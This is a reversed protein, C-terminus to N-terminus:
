LLGNSKAYYEEVRKVDKHIQERLEIINAFKMQQHLFNYFEVRITKGYINKDFHLIHTEVRREFNNITPNYGISTISNYKVGDIITRTAYVGDPPLLKNKHPILNATPFGITHGLNNGHVVEGSIFYPATLLKTAETFNQSTILSRIYSSSIVQGSSTIEDSVKLVTISKEFAIRNLADASDDCGFKFREGLVIGKCNYTEIITKIFTYSFTAALKLDFPQKAFTDISLQSVIEDRELSTLITKFQEDRLVINTHPEFVLLMTKANLQAALRKAKAILKRHGVHVGDFNGLTLIM